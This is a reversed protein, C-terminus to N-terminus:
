KKILTIMITTKHHISSVSIEGIHAKIIQYCIALGLGNHNTKKTTYGREFIHEIQDNPIMEGRNTIHIHYGIEDELLEFIIDTDEFAYEIANMLINELCIVIKEQDAYLEFDHGITKIKLQKSQLLIQYKEELSQITEKLSFLKKHLIMSKKVDLTQLLAIRKSLIQVKQAMQSLLYEEKNETIGSNLLEIYGNLSTAPAKLDHAVDSIYDKLQIENESLFQYNRYLEIKEYFMIISFYTIFVFGAIESGWGLCIPEYWFVNDMNISVVFFIILGSLYKSFSIEKQNKYVIYLMILSCIYKYFQGLYSMMYFFKTTPEFILYPVILLCVVSGLGTLIQTLSFQYHDESLLLLTIFSIMCIYSMDELRYWLYSQTNFILHIIGYLIYGLYSFCIMAFYGDRAKYGMFFYSILCVLEMLIPLFSQIGKILTQLSQYVHISQYNGYAIPYVMGSYYHNYDSVQIVIDNCIQTTFTVASNMIKPQYNEKKVEGNQNYLEGNIYLQYASYIEPIQMTVVKNPTDFIRLRYTAQGHSPHDINDLEFGSYQGIDIYRTPTYQDTQIMQPTLLQDQYFAWQRTLFHMDQSSTTYDVVGCIAEYDNYTYKNDFTHLFLQFVISFLFIVIFFRYKKM